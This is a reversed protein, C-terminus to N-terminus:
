KKAIVGVEGMGVTNINPSANIVTRHEEIQKDLMRRATQLITEDPLNPNAGKVKEMIKPLLEEEFLVKVM